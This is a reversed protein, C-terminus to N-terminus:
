VAAAEISFRREWTLASGIIDDLRDHRPMWHFAERVRRNDAVLAPPDGARRAGMRVPLARGSLREVTAIVDKVSFGHGYGCNLTLSGGGRMLHDLAAVHAAALDAVHIFDRICTGDPTDYDQGFVTLCDRLGLAAECAVKILHTAQPTAQGTRGLPDAGAVNFYRLACYRLATAAATDRLMWETMLKSWGYPNIPQTPAEEAVPGGVGPIGYVAASSSFILRHVGVDLCSAALSLSNVTNSRYYKVPDAVSEPVVVSGAFHLVASCQFDRLVSRVVDADGVDAVMLSAEPPVLERRGTCLNDIVVVRWGADLLAYAVHSGVYGAGGTVLVCGKMTSSEGDMASM